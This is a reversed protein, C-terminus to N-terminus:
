SSFILIQPVQGLLFNYFKPDVTAGDFRVRYNKFLRRIKRIDRRFCFWVLFCKLIILVLLPTSQYFSLALFRTMSKLQTM